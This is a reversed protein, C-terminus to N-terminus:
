GGLFEDLVLESFTQELERPGDDPEVGLRVVYRGADRSLLERVAELGRQGRTTASRLPAGARFALSGSFGAPCHVELSGTGASAELEAFLEGLRGPGLVGEVVEGESPRGLVRTTRALVEQPGEVWLRFPGIAVVKGLGLEMPQGGVRTEGIFTGNASSLDRIQVTGGRRRIEAHQRSVNKDPLVLPNSPSRGVVVSCGDALPIPDFPECVLVLDAEDEAEGAGGSSAPEFLDEERLAKLAPNTAKKLPSVRPRGETAPATPDGGVPGGGRLSRRVEVFARPSLFTFRAESGFRIAARDELEVEHAPDLEVGNWLTGNTSESDRLRWPGGPRAPPILLAHHSSVHQHQVRLDSTKARGVVLPLLAGSGGDAQRPRLPFVEREALGPGHGGIGGEQLLFPQTFTELFAEDSLGGFRGLFEQLKM